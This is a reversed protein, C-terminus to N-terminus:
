EIGSKFDGSSVSPAPLSDLAAQTRNKKEIAEKLIDLIKIVSLRSDSYYKHNLKVKVM